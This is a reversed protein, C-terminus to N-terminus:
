GWERVLRQNPGMAFLIKSKKRPSPILEFEFRYVLIDLGDSIRTPGSNVFLQLEGDVTNVMADVRKPEMLDVAGFWSKSQDDFDVIIWSTKVKTNVLERSLKARLNTQNEKSLYCSVRIPDTADGAFSFTEIIGVCPVTAGGLLQQSAGGIPNWVLM